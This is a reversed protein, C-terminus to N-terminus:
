SGALAEKWEALARRVVANVRNRLLNHPHVGFVEEPLQRVLKM